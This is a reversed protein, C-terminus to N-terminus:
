GRGARAALSAAKAAIDDHIGDRLTLLFDVAETVIESRSVKSGFAMRDLRDALDPPLYVTIRVMDGAKRTVIRKDQTTM